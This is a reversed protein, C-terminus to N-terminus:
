DRVNLLSQAVVEEFVNGFYASESQIDEQEIAQTKELVGTSAVEM